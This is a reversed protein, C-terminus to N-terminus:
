TKTDPPASHHATRTRHKPGPKPKNTTTCHTACVEAMATSGGKVAADASADPAQEAM